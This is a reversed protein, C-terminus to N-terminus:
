SPQSLAELRSLVSDLNNIIEENTFRLFRIGETEILSQRIKDYEKQKIHIYGDLEIALKLKHCYFDVVFGELIHQRRFKLYKLKRNRLAQWLIEEAKTQKKRLNRAFEKKLYNM